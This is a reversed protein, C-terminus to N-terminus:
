RSKSLLKSISEKFKQVDTRDKIKSFELRISIIRSINGIFNINIGTHILVANNTHAAISVSAKKPVGDVVVMMDDGKVFGDTKLYKTCLLSGLQANYLRQFCVGGFLDIDPIEIILNIAQDSYIYDKNISDELDILNAEVVMPAVFAVINGQRNVEKKFFKYAFRTKLVSGDYYNCETVEKLKERNIIM